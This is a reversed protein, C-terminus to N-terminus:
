ICEGEEYTKAEATHVIRFTWLKNLGFSIPTVAFVTILNAWYYKNLFGESDTFISTPLSIASQPHMLATLILLGFGQAFLGVILFPFYQKWFPAPEATKFTWNRNLVFNIFNAVLFALTSWLHYNRVSLDTLLIGIVADERDVGFFDRGIVNCGVVVGQNVLVGLGGVLAFRAFQSLNRLNNPSQDNRTM